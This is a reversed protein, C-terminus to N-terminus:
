RSWTGYGPVRGVYVMESCGKEARAELTNQNIPLELWLDSLSTRINIELKGGQAYVESHSHGATSLKQM